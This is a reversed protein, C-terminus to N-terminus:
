DTLGDIPTPPRRFTDIIRVPAQPRGIAVATRKRVDHQQAALPGDNM